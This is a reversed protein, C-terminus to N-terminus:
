AAIAANGGAREECAREDHDEAADLSPDAIPILLHDLADDLEGDLVVLGREILSSVLAGKEREDPSANLPGRMEVLSWVHEGCRRLRALLMKERHLLYLDTGALLGLVHSAGGWNGAVLCNKLLDGSAWLEQVSALHQWGAPVPFPCFPGNLASLDDRLRRAVAQRGSGEPVEALRRLAGRAELWEVAIALRQRSLNDTIQSRTRQVVPHARMLHQAEALHGRTITATGLADVFGSRIVEDLSSIESRSWAPLAVRELVRFLRSDCGPVARELLQRPDTSDIAEAMVEMATGAHAEAELYAAVAHIARAPSLALTTALTPALRVLAAVRAAQRGFLKPIPATERAEELRQLLSM